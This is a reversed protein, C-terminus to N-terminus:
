WCKQVDTREARRHQEAAIPGFSLRAMERLRANFQSESMTKWREIPVTQAFGFDVGLWDKGDEYM